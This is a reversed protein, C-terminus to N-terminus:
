FIFTELVYVELRQIKFFLNQKELIFFILEIETTSPYIIICLQFWNVYELYFIIYKSKKALWTMVHINFLM